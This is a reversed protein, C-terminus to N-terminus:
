KFPHNEVTAEGFSASFATEADAFGDAQVAQSIVLVDYIGNNNGDIAEADENTAEPKMYLQLLSPRAITESDLIGNPNTKLGLYTAVKIVYKSDGIGVDTAVTKWSWFGGNVNTMIVDSFDEASVSGQEFAFWTRVYADTKGTNKVFVFKDMVNKVSDDFLQNSGDAGIQAWSQQHGTGDTATSGNRDDWKIAGDAFVAPVLMRSQTVERLEDPTYGYKDTEGTSVWNGNQDVVREYELQEIKVNGMEMTSSLTETESAFYALTSQISITAVAVMGLTIINEKENKERGKKSKNIYFM